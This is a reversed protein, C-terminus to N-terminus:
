VQFLGTGLESLNVHFVFGRRLLMVDYCVIKWETTFLEYGAWAHLLQNLALVSQNYCQSHKVDLQRSLGGRLM